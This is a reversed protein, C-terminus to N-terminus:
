INELATVRALLDAVKTKETEIIEQQEQVAKVCYTLISNYNLGLIDNSEPHSVIHALEPIEQIEQAIFGDDKIYCKEVTCEEDCMDNNTYRKDYHVPNLKKITDIANSLPQINKKLRRDSTSHWLSAYATGNTAFLFQTSAASRLKPENNADFYLYSQGRGRITANIRVDGNVDLPYSPNNMQVGIRNSVVLSYSGGATYPPPAYNATPNTIAMGGAGIRVVQMNEQNNVRVTEFYRFNNFHTASGWSTNGDKKLSILPGPQNYDGSLTLNKGQGITVNGSGDFNTGTEEVIEGDATYALASAAYNGGRVPKV